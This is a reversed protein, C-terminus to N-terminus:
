VLSWLQEFSSSVNADCLSCLSLSLNLLHINVNWVLFLIAVSMSSSTSLLYVHMQSLRCFPLLSSTIKLWSFHEATSICAYCVGPLFEYWCSHINWHLYVNSSPCTAPLGCAYSMNANYSPPDLACLLAFSNRLVQSCGTPACPDSSQRPQLHSSSSLWLNCFNSSELSWVLLLRVPMRCTLVHKGHSHKEALRSSLSFPFHNFVHLMVLSSQQRWSACGKVCVCVRECM